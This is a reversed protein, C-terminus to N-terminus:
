KDVTKFGMTGGSPLNGYRDHFEMKTSGIDKVGVELFVGRKSTDTESLIMYYKSWPNPAPILSLRKDDPDLEKVSFPTRGNVKFTLENYSNKDEGSPVYASIIFREMTEDSIILDNNIRNVYTSVFYVKIKSGKKLTTRQTQTLAQEHLIDTPKAYENLKQTCGTLLFSSMIFPIFIKYM